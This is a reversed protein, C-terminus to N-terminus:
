RGPLAELIRLYSEYRMRSVRGEELAARVACAPEERHLCDKYRCGGQLRAMEPFHLWLETRPIDSPLFERFGPTDVVHGGSPLRYLSAATTTHRGKGTVENVEGTTLSLTPDLRNLLTSKGVGSHGSLVTLKGALREAVADIGDGRLASVELVPYGIRRYLECAEVLESREPAHDDNQDWKNVCIASEVGDREASALMRDVLGWRPPPDRAAMVILIADVNAAIAVPKGGGTNRGLVNRRPLIREITGEAERTLSFEVRDGVLVPSRGDGGSRMKGRLSCRVVVGARTEVRLDSSSKHVVLGEEVSM